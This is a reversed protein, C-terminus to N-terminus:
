SGSGRPEPGVNFTLSRDLPADVVRTVIAQPCASRLREEEADIGDRVSQDSPVDSRTYNTGHGQNYHDIADLRAQEECDMQELWAEDSPQVTELLHYGPELKGVAPFTTAHTLYLVQYGHAVQELFQFEAISADGSESTTQCTEYVGSSWITTINSARNLDCKRIERYCENGARCTQVSTLCANTLCQIYSSSWQGGLEAIAADGSTAALGCKEKVCERTRQFCRGDETCSETHWTCSAAEEDCEDISGTTSLMPILRPHQRPVVVISGIGISGMTGPEDSPYPILASQPPPELLDLRFEAPFQGQVETDLLTYNPIQAFAVAPVLDFARPEALVVTGRLSLLPEGSYGQGVQADCGLVGGLALALGLGVAVARARGKQKM